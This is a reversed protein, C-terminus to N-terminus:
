SCIQDVSETVAKAYLKYAVTDTELRRIQFAGELVRIQDRRFQFFFNCGAPNRSRKGTGRKESKREKSRPM